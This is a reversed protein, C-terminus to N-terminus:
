LLWDLLVEIQGGQYSKAQLIRARNRRQDRYSEIKQTKLSDSEKTDGDLQRTESILRIARMWRSRAWAPRSLRATPMMWILIYSRMRGYGLEKSTQRGPAADLMDAFGYLDAEATTPGFRGEAGAASDGGRYIWSWTTHRPRKRLM